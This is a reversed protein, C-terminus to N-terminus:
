ENLYTNVKSQIAKAVEDASKQGSSFPALEDFILTYIKDDTELVTNIGTIFSELHDVEESTPEKFTIEKGNVNGKKGLGKNKGKFFQPDKLQKQLQHFASKSVPIGRLDPDTQIDDSLVFKIFEWAEQKNKSKDNISLSFNSHFSYGQDPIVSPAKYLAGNGDFVTQPLILMDELNKLSDTNFLNISDTRESVAIHNDVMSKALNLLNIFEASDFSAKKNATDLFREMGSDIMTGLLFNMPMDDIASGGAPILPTVQNVFDQWNWKNDNVKGNGVLASDGIWINTYQVSTPLSYYGERYKMADFVNLYYNNKDFTSDNKMLDAMNVLLHKDAYKKYPLENTLLIDPGKGSTLETSITDVFKQLDRLGQDQAGDASKDPPTANYIKFNVKINPHAAEFKQKLLDYFTENMQVSITITKDTAPSDSIGASDSSKDCASTIILCAATSIILIAKLIEGSMNM